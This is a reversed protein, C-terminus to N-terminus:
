SREKHRAIEPRSCFITSRRKRTTSGAASHTPTRRRRRTAITSAGCCEAGKSSARAALCAPCAPEIAPLGNMASFDKVRVTLVPCPALRVVREAVSGGLHRPANAGNAGVVILDARIETAVAAIQEAIPGLRVHLVPQAPVTDAHRIRAGKLARYTERGLQLRAGEMLKTLTAHHDAARLLGLARNEIVTLIHLTAGPTKCIEDLASELALSGPTSFDVGVLICLPSANM